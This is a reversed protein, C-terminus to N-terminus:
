EGARIIDGEKVPRDVKMYFQMYPHPTSEIPNGETDYLETVSYARGVSGPTLIEVSDGRKMKNRQGCLALGREEDYALVM